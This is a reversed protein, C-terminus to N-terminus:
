LSIDTRRYTRRDSLVDLLDQMMRDSIKFVLANAAFATRATVANVVETGLDINPRAVDGKSNAYPASPDHAVTYAPSVNSVVAKTGGGAIDVTDARRPTAPAPSGAPADSGPIAGSSGANAINGAAVELRASAAMMGSVAISSVSSM